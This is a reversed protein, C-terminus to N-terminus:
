AADPTPELAAPDGVRLRGPQLVAAYVRSSGGESQHHLRDIRGDVFWRANQSCPLAYALVACRVAGLQLCVGPRVQTWDLGELSLNEGAFGPGIPHGEAALAAVAEASWLCLAQYPRGHHRQTKQRDGVLGSRGVEGFLAPRKPVGGESVFIGAVRGQRPPPLLGATALTTRSQHLLAWASAVCGQLPAGAALAAQVAAAEQRAAAFLGAPREWAAQDILKVLDAILYRGHAESFTWDEIQLTM